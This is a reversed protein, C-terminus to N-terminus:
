QEPTCRYSCHKGDILRGQAPGIFRGSEGVELRHLDKFKDRVIIPSPGLNEIKIFM